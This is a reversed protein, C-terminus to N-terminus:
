ARPKSQFLRLVLAALLCVLPGTILNLSLTLPNLLYLTRIPIALTPLQLLGELGRAIWLAPPLAILLGLVAELLLLVPLGTASSNGERSGPLSRRISFLLLMLAAGNLIYPELAVVDFMTPNGLFLPIRWFQWVLFVTAQTSSGSLDIAVPVQWPLVTSLLRLTPYPGPLFQNATLLYDYAASFVYGAITPTLALLMVAILYSALSRAPESREEEADEDEADEDEADEDVVQEQDEEVSDEDVMQEQSEDVPSESEELETIETEETGAEEAETAPASPTKNSKAPLPRLPAFALHGLAAGALSFLISFVAILAWTILFGQQEEADTHLITLVYPATIAALFPFLALLFGGIAAELLGSGKPTRLKRLATILLGCGSASLVAIPTLSTPVQPNLRAVVAFFLAILGVVSVAMWDFGKKSHVEEEERLPHLSQDNEEQESLLPSIKKEETEQVLDLETQEEQNGAGM